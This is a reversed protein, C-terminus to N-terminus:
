REGSLLGGGRDRAGSQALRTFDLGYILGSFWAAWPLWSAFRGSAREAQLCCARATFANRM